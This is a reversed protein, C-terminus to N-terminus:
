GTCLKRQDPHAIAARLDGRWIQRDAGRGRCWARPRSRRRIRREACQEAEWCFNDLPAFTGTAVSTSERGTRIFRAAGGPQDLGGRQHGQGGDHPAYATDLPDAAARDQGRNQDPRTVLRGLRGRGRQGGREDGRGSAHDRKREQRQLLVDGDIRVPRCSDSQADPAQGTAIGTGAELGPHRIKSIRRRTPTRTMPM